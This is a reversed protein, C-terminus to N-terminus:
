FLSRKAGEVLSNSKSPSRTPMCTSSRESMVPRGPPTLIRGVATYEVGFASQEPPSRTVATYWGSYAIQWSIDDAAITDSRCSGGLTLDGLPHSPTRLYDNAGDASVVEVKANPVPM